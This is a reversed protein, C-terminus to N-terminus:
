AFRARNGDPPRARFCDSIAGFSKKKEPRLAERSPGVTDAAQAHRQGLPKESGETTDRITQREMEANMEAGLLVVFASIYLWMLFIVVSGLPGYTKDYSAFKSVYLSFAGSALLWLLTAVGAGWSVWNWRAANRCPGYRYMVALGTVSFILLVPWRLVNLLTEAAATIHLHELVTPLVAVLGVAMLVGIIGGITLVFAM